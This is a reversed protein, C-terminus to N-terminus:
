KNTEIHGKRYLITYDVICKTQLLKKPNIEVFAVDNTIILNTKQRKVFEITCKSFQQENFM